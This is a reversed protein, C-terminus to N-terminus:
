ECRPDFWVVSWWEWVNGRAVELGPPEEPPLSVPRAVEEAAAPNQAIREGAGARVAAVQM